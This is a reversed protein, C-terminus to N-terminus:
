ESSGTVIAVKGLLLNDSGGSGVADMALSRVLSNDLEAPRPRIAVICSPFLIYFILTSKYWHTNQETVEHFLVKAVSYAIELKKSVLSMCM